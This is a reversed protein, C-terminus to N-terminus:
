INALRNAMEVMQEATRLTQESSTKVEKTALQIEKVGEATQEITTTQQSITMEIQKASSLNEEASDVVDDFHKRTSSIHMRGKEVAKMSDETVIVTKNAGKQVEEILGRIEKTSDMAKNALKMIQEALASFRKGAEGAGAAEITANYSLITTQESLEKIIELAIDMQQTKEGLSLMNNVVNDVNTKIEEIGGIATELSDKGDSAANNSSNASTVVSSSAESMQKSSTVLESMVTSIETTSTVQEGASSLQQQSATKLEESASLLEGVSRQLIATLGRVLLIAAFIIAVICIIAIVIILGQLTKVAAFAESENIEAIMSWTTEGLKLPSYSSLVKQNKYNRILKVGTNGNLAARVSETDIGNQQVTGSFSANVSRAKPDLYSDSRMHLDSGVLYTEGTEGMGSREGMIANIASLSIQMAVVGILTGKDKIPAAVFQAPVGKSPAYPKTDSLVAKGGKSAIRWAYQLTGTEIDIARIGFDAEKTVTFIIDGKEAGLLFIDYYQYQDMYYKFTSFYKDHVVQYAKPADFAGNTYGKFKGRDAGGESTFAAELEKMAQIVFPNDALVRADGMRENFFREIQSKKIDRIAQLNNNSQKEIADSAKLLCLIGVVSVPTLGVVLFLMVLKGKFKLKDFMHLGRGIKHSKVNKYPHFAM